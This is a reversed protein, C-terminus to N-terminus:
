AIEKNSLGESLLRLIELERGTLPEAMSSPSVPEPRSNFSSVSDTTKRRDGTASKNFAALVRGLYEPTVGREVLQYLLNAMGPGLDVFTRIFGGPQALKVSRELAKLADDTQGQAQYALALHALTGIQRYTNHTSEARVLLTRLLHVAERLSADTEQAILVRSKSLVPLELLVFTFGAPMDIPHTEVWRIAAKLDGQIATLRAEVASLELLREMIGSDLAFGRLAALTSMQRESRGQAQYIMTLAVMSDLVFMYHTGYRHEFVSSCNQKATELLNWEYDIRGLAWDAVAISFTLKAENAIHRLQYAVQAAQHFNGALLHVYIQSHLVLAIFAKPQSSAMVLFEGSTRVAINTQGTMQYALALFVIATSRAFAHALTIHEEASLARKLAQKAQGGWVLVISWLADIEGQLGRVTEAWVDPDASLRAEAEQLLPPIGAYQYRLDLVWARAVLLAPREQITEEPLLNLWRELTAWDELNLADHRNDEVLRAAGKVDGAVLTHDLAEEVLGNSAFWAGARRHLSAFEETNLQSQLRHHLADKFLHHYRYWNREHDLPVLFLNAQEMEELIAQSEAMGLISACLPGCFRDLISTRLLFEQVTQTQRNLIETVLYDIIDRHTGRFSRIFARHDSHGRMSLAALRLGAIWGETQKELVTVTDGHLAIGVSRELFARAEDSTFRLDNARIDLLQQGARLSALALPPDTRSAIVLHVARPLDRIIANLLEHIAKDHVAHYDDLVLIFGKTSHGELLDYVEKSITTALYDLPPVEPTRLLGQTMPFANPVVTQIAAVLYNLFVLINNDREDLSLWAVPRQSDPLWQVLLTTKGYGAPASVLTLKRDPGRNLRELLRPRNVFDSAVRPPFLKTRIINLSDAGPLLTTQAM